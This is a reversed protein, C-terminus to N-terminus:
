LRFRILPISFGMLLSLLFIDLPGIGIRSLTIVFGSTLLFKIFRKLFGEDVAIAQHFIPHLSFGILFGAFRLFSVERYFLYTLCLLISISIHLLISLNYSSNEFWELIILTFLITVTLGLAFGGFIDLPYHVNLALRSFSVLCILIISLITVPFRWYLMALSGWFTTSSQAHGSPFSYGGVKVRPNLPRPMSVIDKISLNVWGSVILSFIAKYAKDSDDLFYILLGVVIYITSSGISTLLLWGYTYYPDPLLSIIISYVIISSSLFYLLNNLSLRWGLRIVLALLINRCM